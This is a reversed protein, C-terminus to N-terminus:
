QRWILVLARDDSEGARAQEVIRGAGGVFGDRVLREAHGLMRDIGADLDRDPTEVVGDTYLLLADGPELLGTVADFGADPLVGLVPGGVPRTLTWRGSGAHFQAAPPHGASAVRYRGTDLDLDLHVATAFGEDWQQRILYANAAPLFRHPPMAGLLGGFAGSLLLAHTGAAAGKGAVDVLAVELRRTAGARTAVLFDGSFSEGYASCLASEAHWGPPLAPLVGQASLRDRLDILMADGLTGQLGLRARSRVVLWSFAATVVLLVTIGESVQGGAFRRQSDVFAVGAAVMAILLLLERPRLLFAGLVLILGFAAVPVWTQWALTGFTIALTLLTLGLLHLGTNFLLQRRLLYRRRTRTRARAPWTRATRSSTAPRGRWSVASSLVPV